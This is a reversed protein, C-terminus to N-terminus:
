PLVAKRLGARDLKGNPLRPLAALQTVRIPWIARDINQRCYRWFDAESWGVGPVLAAVIRDVGFEDPAVVAAADLVLPSQSLKGEITEITTKHGGLNVVGAERGKIQLVDDKGILGLDGPYFWGDDFKERTEDDHGLYGSANASSRIRLRGAGEATFAGDRLPVIEVAMGPAVFGVEGLGLDLSEVPASAVVGTETTGYFTVLNNCM